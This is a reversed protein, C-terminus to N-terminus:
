SVASIPEGLIAADVDVGLGPTTPAYGLGQANKRLPPDAIDPFTWESFFSTTLLAQPPTSAALHSLSATVLGGGWTEDVTIKMGLAAAADRLLRAPTLGGVRGPKINVGGIGTTHKALMLDAVTNVCEDVIMPMDTHRRIEGCDQMTRCPQELYVRPDDIAQAAILADQVDWGCNADAIITQSADTVELVAAVRAADQLPDNGVKLQFDLTGTSGAREVYAAMAEPSDLPVPEFIRIADTLRGGLLEAVPLGASKGLIDWCAIDIASKAAMGSVLTHSMMAQIAGPERPDLGLVARALVLLAACEGEFFAPLYTGGHPCTEGWGVIGADTLIRVVISPEHSQSRGHSMVYAGHAYALEYTFLEIKTIKM